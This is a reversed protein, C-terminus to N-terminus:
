CLFYIGNIFDEDLNFNLHKKFFGAECFASEYEQKKFCSIEFNDEFVTTKNLPKYFYKKHLKAVNGELSNRSEVSLVESIKRSAFRPVYQELYVWPEILVFGGNKLHRKFNCLTDVLEKYNNVHAISGFLCTIVDFKRKFNFTRMDDQVVNLKKKIAVEVLKSNLDLGFCDFKFNSLHAGTGCAVDLLKIDKSDFFHNKILVSISDSEKKYNKDSHILDYINEYGSKM